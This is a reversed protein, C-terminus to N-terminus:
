RSSAIRNVANLFARVSAEVVDTALGKGLASEGTESVFRLSVDALADVGGTVSMVSYDQLRGQMGTAAKVASCAADIM